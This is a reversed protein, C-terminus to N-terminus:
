FRNSSVQTAPSDTVWNYSPKPTRWDKGYLYELVKEYDEPVCVSVGQISLNTFRNLMSLPTTYGASKRQPKRDGAMNRAAIALPRFVALVRAIRKFRGGYSEGEVLANTLRVFWPDSAIFWESYAIDRLDDKRYFNIDVQRGGTRSFTLFDYDQGDSKLEFGRDIFRSILDAKGAAGSWMAFDVDHDWEILAGDRVLGLLTGHCAWYVIKSQNLISVSDLFNPDLPTQRDVSDPM